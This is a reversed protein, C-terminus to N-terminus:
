KNSKTNPIKILTAQSVRCQQIVGNNDTYQVCTMNGVAVRKKKGGDIREKSTQWYISCIIAETSDPLVYVMDGVRFPVEHQPEHILSYAFVLVSVLIFSLLLKFVDDM